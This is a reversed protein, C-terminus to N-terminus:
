LVARRVRTYVSRDIRPKVVRPDPGPACGSLFREFQHLVWRDHETLYPDSLRRIVGDRTRASLATSRLDYPENVSLQRM